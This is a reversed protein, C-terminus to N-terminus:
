VVLLQQEEKCRRIPQSNTTVRKRRSSNRSGTKPSPPRRCGSRKKRMRVDKINLPDEEKGDQKKREGESGLMPM